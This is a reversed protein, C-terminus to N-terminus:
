QRAARRVSVGSQTVPQFAKSVPSAAPILQRALGSKQSASLRSEFRRARGEPSPLVRRGGKM